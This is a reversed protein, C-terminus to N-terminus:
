KNKNYVLLCKSSAKMEVVKVTLFCIVCTDVIVHVTVIIVVIVLCRYNLGGTYADTKIHSVDSTSAGQASIPPDDGSLSSMKLDTYRDEEGEPNYSAM